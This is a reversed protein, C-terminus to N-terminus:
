RAEGGTRRSATPVDDDTGVTGAVDFHTRWGLRQGGVAALAAQLTADWSAEPEGAATGATGPQLGAAEGLGHHLLGTGLRDDVDDCWAAFRSEDDDSASVWGVCRAPGSGARDADFAAVAEDLAAAGVLEFDGTGEVSYFEV